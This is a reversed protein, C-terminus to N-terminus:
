INTVLLFILGICSIIFFTVFIILLTAIGAIFSALIDYIELPKIIDNIADFLLNYKLSIKGIIYISIIILSIYLLTM